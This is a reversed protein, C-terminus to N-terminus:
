IEKTENNSNTAKNKIDKKYKIYFDEFIEKPVAARGLNSKLM